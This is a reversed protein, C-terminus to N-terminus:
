LVPEPGIFGMSAWGGVAAYRSRRCRGEELFGKKDGRELTPGYRKTTLTPMKLLFDEQFCSLKGVAEWDRQPLKEGRVACDMDGIGPLAEPPVAKTNAGM